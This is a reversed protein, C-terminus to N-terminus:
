RGFRRRIEYILGAGALSLAFFGIVLVAALNYPSPMLVESRQPRDDPHLTM